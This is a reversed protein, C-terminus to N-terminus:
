IESRIILFSSLQWPNVRRPSSNSGTLINAPQGPSTVAPYQYEAPLLWYNEQYINTILGPSLVLSILLVGSNSWETQLTQFGTRILVPSVDDYSNILKIDGNNFSVALVCMRNSPRSDSFTMLEEREEMNFKECNWQLDRIPIDATFTVKNVINGHLDMVIIGGQATGVYVQQDDPTWAGTTLSAEPALMTSWYRQGAVSGVLM